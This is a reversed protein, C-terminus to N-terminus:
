PFSIPLAGGARRSETGHGGRGHDLPPVRQARPEHARTAGVDVDRRLSAPGVQRVVKMICVELAVRVHRGRVAEAYEKEQTPVRDVVRALPLPLVEPPAVIQIAEGPPM